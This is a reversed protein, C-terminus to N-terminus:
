SHVLRTAVAYTSLTLAHRRQFNERAAPAPQRSTEWSDFSDYWTVLMLRVVGEADTGPRFLGQPEAAYDASGEFTEWAQKSLAVVEDVHQERVFFRRFVYLGQRSCPTSDAPRATPSWVEAAVSAPSAIPEADDDLASVMLLENSAPGFLPNFAGWLTGQYHEGAQVEHILGRNNNSSSRLIQYHFITM